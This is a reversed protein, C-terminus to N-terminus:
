VNVTMTGGNLAVDVPAGGGGGTQNRRLSRRCYRVAVNKAANYDAHNEYGCKQCAFTEQEPRNNEHTFGCSSCRQSTYYAPVTKAQPSRELEEVEIGHANAKYEVYEYLRNFRWRHHWTAGRCRKRIDTLDEFAIVSCDHEVAEEVIETAVIHLYQKYYATEKKSVRQLTRHAEQTGTQQLAARRHHFERHWHDLEDGTWFRGTSAVALNEVGLDIGLVTSHEPVNADTQETRTEEDTRKLGIHLWFEDDLPKYHLTSTRFEWEDSGLYAEFPTGSEDEPLLYDAEIRGDVTSLSVSEDHFTAARKDYRATDATFEPQSTNQNTELRKVGAKIAEVAQFIAQQVLNATLDHNAKLNHYLEDKVAYKATKTYGDDDWCHDSTENACHKYQAITELLAGRESDTVVLKVPLTRRVEM